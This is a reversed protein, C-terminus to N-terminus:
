LVATQTLARDILNLADRLAYYNAAEAAAPNLAVHSSRGCSTLTLGGEQKDTM